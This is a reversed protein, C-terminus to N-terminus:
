SDPVQTWTHMEKHMLVLVDHLSVSNHLPMTLSSRSCLPATFNERQHCPCLLSCWSQYEDNLSRANSLSCHLMKFKSHSRFTEGEVVKNVALALLAVYGPLLCEAATTDVLLTTTSHQGVAEQRSHRCAPTCSSGEMLSLLPSKLISSQQLTRPADEEQM